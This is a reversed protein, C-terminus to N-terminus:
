PQEFRRANGASRGSAAPLGDYVGFLKKRPGGLEIYREDFNLSGIKLSSSTPYRTVSYMSSGVTSFLCYHSSTARIDFAFPRYRMHHPDVSASVRACSDTAEDVLRFTANLASHVTIKSPANKAAYKDDLARM